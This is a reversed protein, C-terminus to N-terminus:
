KGYSPFSVAHNVFRPAVPAGVAPQLLAERHVHVCCTLTLHGHRLLTRFPNIIRIKRRFSVASGSKVLARTRMEVKLGDLKNHRQLSCCRECFKFEYLWYYYLLLRLFTYPSAVGAASALQKYDQTTCLVQVEFFMWDSDTSRLVAVHCDHSHQWPNNLRVGIVLPCLAAM